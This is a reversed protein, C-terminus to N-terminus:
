LYGDDARSVLQISLGDPDMVYISRNFDDTMVPSPRGPSRVGRDPFASRLRERLGDVGPVNAPYEIGMGLHHLQGAQVPMRPSAFLLSLWANARPLTLNVQGRDEGRLKTGLLAGYFDRSRAGDVVVFSPHNFGTFRVVGSAKTRSVAPPEQARPQRGRDNAPLLQITVGDPDQLLLSRDNGRGSAQQSRVDSAPFKDGLLKQLRETHRPLVVGFGIHDLTGPKAGSEPQVRNFAIWSTADGLQMTWLDETTDIIQGGFLQRYFEFSRRPDAVYLQVHNINQVPALASASAHGHVETQPGCWLVGAALVAVVAACPRRCARKMLIGKILIVPTAPIARTYSRSRTKAQFPASM